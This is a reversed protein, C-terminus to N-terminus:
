GGGLDGRVEDEEKRSPLTCVLKGEARAGGRRDQSPSKDSREMLSIAPDEPEAKRKGSKAM